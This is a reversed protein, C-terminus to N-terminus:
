WEQLDDPQIVNENLLRVLHVVPGPIDRDGNEWRRVTRGAKVGLLDAMGQASYGLAHRIKYFERPTM